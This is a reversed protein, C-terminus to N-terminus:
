FPLLPLDWRLAAWVFAAIGVVVAGIFLARQLPSSKKASEELQDVRDVLKEVLREVRDFELALMALGVFILLFGPGPVLPISLVMGALVLWKSEVTGGCETAM